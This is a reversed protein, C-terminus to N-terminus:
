SPINNERIGFWGSNTEPDYGWEGQELMEDSFMKFPPRENKDSKSIPNKAIICSTLLVVSFINLLAHYHRM